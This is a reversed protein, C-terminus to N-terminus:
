QLYKTFGIIGYRRGRREEKITLPCYVYRIVIWKYAKLIVCDTLYKLPNVAIRLVFKQVLDYSKNRVFDSITRLIEAKVM